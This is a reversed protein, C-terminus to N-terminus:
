AHAGQGWYAARVAGEPEGSEAVDADLIRNTMVRVTNASPLGFHGAIRNATYGDIRWRMMQLLAEDAERTYHIIRM